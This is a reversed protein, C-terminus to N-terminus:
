KRFIIYINYIYIDMYIMHINDPLNIPIFAMYSIWESASICMWTNPSPVMLFVPHVIVQWCHQHSGPCKPCKPKSGSGHQCINLIVQNLDGQQVIAVPCCQSIHFQLRGPLGWIPKWLRKKRLTSTYLNSLVDLICIGLWDFCESHPTLLNCGVDVLM